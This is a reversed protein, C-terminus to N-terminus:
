AAPSGAPVKDAVLDRQPQDPFQEYLKRYLEKARETEGARERARAEGLIADGTYPGEAAAASMYKEAAEKWAGKGALAAGWAVFLQQRLYPPLDHTPGLLEDIAAIAGDTNGSRLETNAALVAALNSIPTSQWRRAVEQLENKAAGLNAARLTAMARALDGNADRMRATRFATSVALVILVVLLGGGVVAMTQSHQTAWLLARRTATVFEDPKKLDKRRIRTKAM